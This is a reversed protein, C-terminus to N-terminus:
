VRYSQECECEWERGGVQDKMGARNLGIAFRKVVTYSKLTDHKHSLQRSHYGVRALESQSQLWM